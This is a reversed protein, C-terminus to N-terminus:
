TRNMSLLRTPTTASTVIAATIVGKKESHSVRSVMRRGAMAVMVVLSTPVVMAEMAVSVGAITAPDEPMAAKRAAVALARWSIVVAAMRPPMVKETAEKLAVMSPGRRAAAVVSARMAVLLRTSMEAAHAEAETMSRAVSKEESAARHMIVLLVNRKGTHHAPNTPSKRAVLVATNAVTLTPHSRVVSTVPSRVVAMRPSRAVVMLLSRAVVTLPSRAVVTRPSRVVVTRPSRVVVTRLSTMVTALSAAMHPSRRVAVTTEPVKRSAISAALSRPSDTSTGAHDM